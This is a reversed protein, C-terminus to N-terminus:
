VHGLYHVIGMFAPIGKSAQLFDSLSFIFLLLIGIDGHQM